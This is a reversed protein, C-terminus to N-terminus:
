HLNILRIIELVLDGTTQLSKPSIKDLTDQATHHYGDPLEQTHPGYDYDILDLVPVGRQKFPLHDDEIALPPDKSIAALHNTNKAATMLIDTLWPTSNQERDIDLSKDGIMDLVIFSKIKAITGDQSWKAALHRTGYLSDSTSWSKIAEEGDDFVLWISYGQPPNKRLYNGMEILMASTCAGDNAGVFDIDKLPYNTEYHSAIVIVGDKKGPYRVIYNRMPVAGIPTNTATFSDTEFNGKAIEPAFHSKIFEEAAEHGPSGSWRKSAAALLQETLTYAAQGNFRPTTSKSPQALAPLSLLALVLLSLLLQLDKSKRQASREPHCMVRSHSPIM